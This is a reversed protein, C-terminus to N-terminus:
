SQPGAAVGHDLMAKTPKPKRHNTATVKVSQPFRARLIAGCIALYGQAEPLTARGFIEELRQADTIKKM